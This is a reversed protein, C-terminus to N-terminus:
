LFLYIMAFHLIAGVSVMVHFFEHYGFIHPIFAPKKLGYSIAGVTYSLGGLLLLSLKLIGLAPLLGKLYPLVLFGMILYLIASIMKPINVFFLSQLLGLLAVVWVLSLLNEGDPSNMGLKTIPTFSGAIMIYISAHDLRKMLLRKTPSWTIRHYLASVGFMTLLGISYVLIPILEAQNKCKLLLLACAGLSVFFMAQHFHGRLLPRQIVKQIVNNNM